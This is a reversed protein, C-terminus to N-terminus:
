HNSISVCPLFPSVRNEKADPVASIQSSKLNSIQSSSSIM